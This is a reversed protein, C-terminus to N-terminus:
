DGGVGVEVGAVVRPRVQDLRAVPERHLHVGATDAVAYGDAGDVKTLDTPHVSWPGPTFKSM